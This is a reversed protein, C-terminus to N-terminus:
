IVDYGVHWNGRFLAGGFRSRKWSVGHRPVFLGTQQDLNEANVNLRKLFECAHKGLLMVAEEAAAVRYAGEVALTHHTDEDKFQEQHVVFDCSLKVPTLNQNISISLAPGPDVRHGIINTAYEGQKGYLKFLPRIVRIDKSAEWIRKHLGDQREANWNFGNGYNNM